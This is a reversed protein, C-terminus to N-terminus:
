EYIKVTSDDIILLHKSALKEGHTELFRNMVELINRTTTDSLTFVIVGRINHTAFKHYSRFDSDRTLIWSGRQEAVKYVEGNKIGVKELKKLHEAEYGEKRLLDLLAFPMNEDLLFRAIM